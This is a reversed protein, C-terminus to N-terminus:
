QPIMKLNGDFTNGQVVVKGKLELVVETLQVIPIDGDLGTVGSNLITLKTEDTSLTWRANNPLAKGSNDFGSVAGDSKFNLRVKDFGLDLANASGKTYLTVGSSTVESIVWVKASLIEKKPKSPTTAEDKKCSFMFGLLTLLTINILNKM